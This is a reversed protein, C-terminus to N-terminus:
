DDDLIEIVSIIKNNNNNNDSPPKISELRSTKLRSVPMSVGDCYDNDVVAIDSELNKKEVAKNQFLHGIAAQLLKSPGGAVRLGNIDFESRPRKNSVLHDNHDNIFLYGSRGQDSPMKKISREESGVRTTDALEEINDANEYETDSESSSIIIIDKNTIFNVQEPEHTLNGSEMSIKSVSSDSYKNRLPKM